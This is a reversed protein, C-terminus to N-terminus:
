ELVAGFRKLVLRVLRDPVFEGTLQRGRRGRHDHRDAVARQERAGAPRDTAVEGAGYPGPDRGVMGEGQGGGTRGGGGGGGGGGRRRAPRGGAARGLHGKRRGALREAGGRIPHPADGFPLEGLRHAIERAGPKANLRAGRRRQGREALQVVDRAPDDQEDGP